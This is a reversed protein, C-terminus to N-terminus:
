RGQRLQDPTKGPWDPHQSGEVYPRLGRFFLDDTSSGDDPDEYHYQMQIGGGPKVYESHDGKHVTIGSATACTSALTLSAISGAFITAPSALGHIPERLDTPKFTSRCDLCTM